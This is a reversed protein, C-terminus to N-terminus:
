IIRIERHKVRLLEGESSVTVRVDYLGPIAYYPVWLYLTKTIEDGKDINYPGITRVTALEQIVAKIRVNEM